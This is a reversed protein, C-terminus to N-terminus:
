SRVKAAPGREEVFYAHLMVGAWYLPLLLLGWLATATAAVVCAFIAFFTGLMLIAGLLKHGKYIHGLGPLLSLLMAASDRPTGARQSERRRYGLVWDCKPCENPNGPDLVADCLPCITHPGPSGPTADPTSM